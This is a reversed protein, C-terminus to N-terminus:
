AIRSMFSEIVEVSQEPESQLELHPGEIECVEIEPKIARMERLSRRRVLKDQKAALYLIPVRCLSLAERADVELVSRLRAALVKPAVSGIAQTLTESLHHSAENGILFRRIAFQPPKAAFLQNRLLFSWHQPIPSPNSVLTACLIMAKLHAPRSAALEIAIPGSFSEALLVYEEDVPARDQVYRLLEAYSLSKHNPYAIILPSFSAPLLRLLSEFLRGTGDLGPLLVLKMETESLPEVKHDM